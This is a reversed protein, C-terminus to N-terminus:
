KLEEEIKSILAKVDDLHHDHAGEEYDSELRAELVRATERLMALMAPFNNVALLIYDRNRATGSATWFGHANRIRSSGKPDRIWPLDMKEIDIKEAM